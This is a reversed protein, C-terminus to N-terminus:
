FNHVKWFFTRNTTDLLLEKCVALLEEPQLSIETRDEVLPRAALVAADVIKGSFLSQLAEVESSCLRVFTQIYPRWPVLKDTVVEDPLWGIKSLDIKLLKEFEDWPTYM